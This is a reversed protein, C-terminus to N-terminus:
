LVAMIDLLQACPAWLAKESGGLAEEPPKVRRFLYWLTLDYV